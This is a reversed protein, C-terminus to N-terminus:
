KGTTKDAQLAALAQEIEDVAQAEMAAIEDVQKALKERGAASFILAEHSTDIENLLQLVDFYKDIALDLHRAVPQPSCRAIMALYKIASIRNIKLNYVVSAHYRAEGRYVVDRLTRSWLAYSKQGTVYGNPMPIQDRGLAVALKLGALNAEHRSRRPISSGITIVFVPYRVLTKEGGDSNPCFGSLPSFSSRENYKTVVCWSGDNVLVGGGGTLSKKIAGHLHMRFYKEPNHKYEEYNGGHCNIEAGVTSQYSELLEPLCDWALPWRGVDLAGDVVAVKDSAPVIFAMGTDGMLTDYDIPNFCVKLRGGEDIVYHETTEALQRYSLIRCLGNGFLNRNLDDLPFNKIIERVTVAEGGGNGSILSFSLLILFLFLVIRM